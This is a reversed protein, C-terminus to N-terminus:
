FPSTRGRKVARHTNHDTDDANETVCNPSRKGTPCGSSESSKPVPTCPSVPRFHTLEAFHTRLNPCLESLIGSVLRVETIDAKFFSTVETLKSCFLKSELSFVGFMDSVEIVNSLAALAVVSQKYRVFAESSCVAMETLYRSVEYIKRIVNGLHPRDPLAPALFNHLAYHLFRIASPPNIRWSLTEFIEKEMEVIEEGSFIGHTLDVFTKLPIKRRRSTLSPDIEGHVKLAVFLSALSMLQFERRGVNKGSSIASSALRDLYYLSVSTVERDFCYYDVVAYNWECIKRRCDEGIFDSSESPADKTYPSIAAYKVIEQELLTNLHDIAFGHSISSPSPVTQIELAYNFDAVRNTPKVKQLSATDELSLAHDQSVCNTIM